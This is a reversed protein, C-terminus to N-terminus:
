WLGREVLLRRLGKYAVEWKYGSVHRSPMALRHQNKEFRFEFKQQKFTNVASIDKLPFVMASCGENGIELRNKYLRAEGRYIPRMPMARKAKMLTINADRLLVPDSNGNLEAQDIEDKIKESLMANQWNKWDAPSAFDPGEPPYQFFGYRDVYISYGCACALSNGKSHLTGIGECSPCAFFALELHEARKEGAIPVKASNQWAYDDQVITERLRREIESLKLSKIESSNIVRKLHVEIRCRRIGWAWRPKTLYGGKIIPIIVPIKLHRVLKATAPILPLSRGDWTQEGEPFIGACHGMSISRKIANLTILDSQEKIKPIAGGLLMFAKLMSDRFAGDSAVWHVPRPFIFSLIFPDWQNTHNPLVLYPGRTTYIDRLNKYRVNLRIFMLIALPLKAVINMMWIIIAHFIDLVIRM